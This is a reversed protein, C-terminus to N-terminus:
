EDKTLSGLFFGGKEEEKGQHIIYYCIGEESKYYVDLASIEKIKKGQQVWLEKIKDLVQKETVQYPGYELYVTAKM